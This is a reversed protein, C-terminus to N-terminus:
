RLDGGIPICRLEPALRLPRRIAPWPVESAYICRRDRLCQSGASAVAVNPNTSSPSRPRSEQDGSVAAPTALPRCGWSRPVLASCAGLGLLNGTLIFMRRDGDVDRVLKIVLVAFLCVAAPGGTIPLRNAFLSMRSCPIMISFIFTLVIEGPRAASRLPDM